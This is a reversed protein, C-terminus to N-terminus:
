TFALVIQRQKVLFLVLNKRQHVLVEMLVLFGYVAKRSLGSDNPIQNEVEGIKTNLVTVLGSTDPIKNEVKSIERSM